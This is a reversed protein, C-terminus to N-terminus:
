ETPLHAAGWNKLFRREHREAGEPDTISERAVFRWKMGCGCPCPRYPDDPIAKILADVAAGPPLTDAKATM